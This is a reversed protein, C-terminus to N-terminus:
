RVKITVPQKIEHDDVAASGHFYPLVHRDSVPVPQRKVQPLRKGIRPCDSCDNFQSQRVTTDERPFIGNATTM